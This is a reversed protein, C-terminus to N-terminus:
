YTWNAEIKGSFNGQNDVQFSGNATFDRDKSAYETKASIRSGDNDIEGELHTEGGMPTARLSIVPQARSDWCVDRGNWVTERVIPDFNKESDYLEANVPGITM